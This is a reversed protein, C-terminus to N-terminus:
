FLFVIKKIALTMERTEGRRLTILKRKLISTEIFMIEAADICSKLYNVHESVIIKRLQKTFTYSDFLMKSFSMNSLDGNIYVQTNTHIHSTYCVIYM